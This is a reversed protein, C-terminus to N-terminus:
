HKSLPNGSISCYYERFGSLPATQRLLSSDTLDTYLLHHMFPTSIGGDDESENEGCKARAQMRKQELPKDTWFVLYETQSVCCSSITQM